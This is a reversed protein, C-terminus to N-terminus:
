GLYKQFFKINEPFQCQNNMKPLHFLEAFWIIVLVWILLWINYTERKVQTVM